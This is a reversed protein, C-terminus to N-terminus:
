VITKKYCTLTAFSLYRAFHGTWLKSEIKCYKEALKPSGKDLMPFADPNYWLVYALLGPYLQIVPFLNNDKALNNLESTTFAQENDEDFFSNKLYILKRVTAM